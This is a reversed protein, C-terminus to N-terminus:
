PGPERVARRSGWLLWPAREGPGSPGFRAVRAPGDGGTAVVHEPDFFSAVVPADLPPQWAGEPLDTRASSRVEVSGPAAGASVTLRAFSHLYTGAVREVDVDLTPDPVPDAEVIGAVRELAWRRVVKHVTAGHAANTLVVVAAEREPVVLLDSVYGVTVGGHGITRAGDITRVFWDLGVSDRADATVVPAHLRELSAPALLVSGDPATGTAQFRAWTLLHAVSAVLGGPADDGPALEWGHQWGARRLLHAQGEFTWHPMAVRGTIVDDARYGAGGLGLPRLFRRRVQEAFPQGVVAEAVAGALTFGANSYSFGQGPEFLRRADALADLGRAHRTVFLHDGDFGSQHSLCHEVTIADTDLGTRTALDPLHRGIPDDLRLLGDAELAVLLAGAFTKSISGVQFLTHEDVPLPHEVSTVGHSALVTEGDAVVGVAVGPVTLREGAERVVEHLEETLTM